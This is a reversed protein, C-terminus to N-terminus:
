KSLLGEVEARTPMAPATGPRTVSISATACGFRVSEITSKGESIATAFGGNFADGAGTTEVVPAHDFAPIMGYGHLYAGQEGMTIIPTKVGMDVFKEAAREADEPTVVSIGTLIQAETENPTVFDCLELIDSGLPTAPAPNLITVKGAKKAIKLGVKAIDVPQELQTVFVDSDEILCTNMTVDESTFRAAAGPSVIISNDGTNDDVFIFAAGTYSSADTTIIPKVDAAKWTELALKGFDDAGLRSIISVNAGLKGAAVAQNSGKGGPGLSFSKGLITEGMKPMRDARYATDAVFIGLVVISGM